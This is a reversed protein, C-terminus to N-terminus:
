EGRGDVSSTSRALLTPRLREAIDETPTAGTDFRLIEPGDPVDLRHLIEEFLRRYTSIFRHGTDPPGGKTTHPQVRGNIREWLVRDPADLWVVAGLEHSWRELMENWWREFPARTTVNKAQAKLRVLAYIPGQDLLTVGREYEPRRGILRHWGSVYALLKLDPWSLRPGPGLGGALIPLVRPVSRVVLALHEPTRTHIPDALRWDPDRCLMRALTSKGSGAVGAVEVVYRRTM